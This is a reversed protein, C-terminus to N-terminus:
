INRKFGMGLVERSNTVIVFANKDINLILNKVYSIDRRQVACITILKDDGRYMGKGYLGTVGRKLKEQIEKSIIENKDSIIILLKTFFIGEFVIDVMLGLIYVTILSYLCIEIKKLFIGNLLIIAFDIITIMTGMEFRKNYKKIIISLLDSGGTSGNSKLIIATGMGTLIGGYICALIKDNTLASYNEFIETFFSLSITGIISKAFFAKGIKFGSFLFLPVNLLIISIGIPFNLKYYLITAIGSFGGSSLENPLLFFSISIAMIAAGIMTGIIELLLNRWSM